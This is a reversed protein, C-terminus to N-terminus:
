RHRQEPAHQPRPVHGHRAGQYLQGLKVEDGLRIRVAPEAERPHHSVGVRAGDPHAALPSTRENVTSAAATLSGTVM